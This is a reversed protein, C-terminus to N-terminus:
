AGLPARARLAVGLMPYVARAFQSRALNTGLIRVTAGIKGSTPVTTVFPGLGMDLLFIFGGYFTFNGFTTGYFSGDTAQLLGAEPSAGDTFNFSYLTTLPSAPTPQFITGYCM